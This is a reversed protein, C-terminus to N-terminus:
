VVELKRAEIQSDIWGNKRVLTPQQTIRTGTYLDVMDGYVARVTLVDADNKEIAPAEVPTEVEIKAAKKSPATAAM